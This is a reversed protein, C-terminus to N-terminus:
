IYSLWKFVMLHSVYPDIKFCENLKMTIYLINDLLNRFRNWAKPKPDQEQPSKSIAGCWEGDGRKLAQHGKMGNMQTKLTEGDM